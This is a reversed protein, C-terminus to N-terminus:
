AMNDDSYNPADLSQFDNLLALEKEDLNIVDEFLIEEADIRNLVVYPNNFAEKMSENMLMTFPTSLNGDYSIHTNDQLDFLVTNGFQVFISEFCAGDSNLGFFRYRILQINMSALIELFQKYEDSTIEKREEFCGSCSLGGDLRFVIGRSTVQVFGKYYYEDPLSGSDFHYVVCTAKKLKDLTLTDIIEINDGDCSMPEMSLVDFELSDIDNVNM